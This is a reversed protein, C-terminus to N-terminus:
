WGLTCLGFDYKLERNRYGLLNVGEVRSMEWVVMLSMVSMSVTLEKNVMGQVSFLVAGILNGWLFYLRDCECFDAMPLKAFSGEILILDASLPPETTMM